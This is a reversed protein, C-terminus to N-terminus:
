EEQAPEEAKEKEVTFKYMLKTWMDYEIMSAAVIPFSRTQLLSTDMNPNSCPKKSKCEPCLGCSQPNLLSPIIKDIVATRAEEVTELFDKEEKYVYSSLNILTKATALIATSLTFDNAKDGQDDKKIVQAVLAATIEESIIQAQENIREYQGVGEKFADDELLAKEIDMNLIEKKQEM